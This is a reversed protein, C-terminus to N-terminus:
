KTNYNMHDQNMPNEPSKQWQKRLIQRLQSIRMSPNEAKLQPMYEEEFKKYSSKMRREPHRDLDPKVSLVSIAEEISRAHVGGDQGIVQNINEEVLDDQVSINARKLAELREEEKKREEEKARQLDIQARTVKQSKAANAKAGALQKEEAELMESLEKKKSLAELRKAEAAQKRAQKKALQKDDDRWLADEAEKERRAKEENVVAAKRAKAEVAKTNQGKFKKPM